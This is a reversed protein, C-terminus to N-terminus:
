PTVVGFRKDSDRNFKTNFYWTRDNIVISRLTKRAYLRWMIYDRRSMTIGKKLLIKIAMYSGIVGAITEVWRHYAVDKNYPELSPTSETQNRLYMVLYTHFDPYMQPMGSLRSHPFALWTFMGLMHGSANIEENFLSVSKINGCITLEIKPKYGFTTLVVLQPFHRTLHRWRHQTLGSYRAYENTHIRMSVHSGFKLVSGHPLQTRFVGDPSVLRLSTTNINLVTKGQNYANSVKQYAVRTIAASFSGFGCYIPIGRSMAFERLSRRNNDIVSKKTLQSSRERIRQTIHEIHTSHPIEILAIFRFKHELYKPIVSTDGNYLLISRSDKGALQQWLGINVAKTSEPDDLWSTDKPWSLITDADTFWPNNKVFHSKGSGSAALAINIKDGDILLGDPHSSISNNSKSKLSVPVGVDFLFRRFGTADIYYTHFPLSCRLKLMNKIHDDYMKPKHSAKRPDDHIVTVDDVDEALPAGGFKVLDYLGTLSQYKTDFQVISHWLVRASKPMCRSDTIISTGSPLRTGLYLGYFHKEDVTLAQDSTVIQKPLDVQPEVSEERPLDM